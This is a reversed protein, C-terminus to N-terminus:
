WPARLRIELIFFSSLEVDAVTQLHKEGSSGGFSAPFETKGEAIVSFDLSIAPVIGATFVAFSHQRLDLGGDCAAFFVFLGKVADFERCLFKTNGRAYREAEVDLEIVIVAPAPHTVM